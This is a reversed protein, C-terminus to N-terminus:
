PQCEPRDDCNGYEGLLTWGDPIRPNFFGWCRGMPDLACAEAEIVGCDGVTCVTACGAYERPDGSLGPPPTGDIPECSPQQCAAESLGQCASAGAGGDTSSTGSAGGAAEGGSEAGSSGGDNPADPTSSDNCAAVLGAALGFLLLGNAICRMM